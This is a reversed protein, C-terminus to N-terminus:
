PNQGGQDGGSNGEGGSGSGEGSPQGDSPPPPPPPTTEQEWPAPAAPAAAPPAPPLTEETPAPAPPAAEPAPAVPAPAAPAPAPAVPATEVPAPPAATEGPYTPETEWPAAPAVAGAPATPMPIEPAPELPPAAPAAHEPAAPPPEVVPKEEPPPAPPLEPPEAMKKDLNEIWKAVRPNRDKATTMQIYRNFSDKAEAYDKLDDYLIGMNLYLDPIGPVLEMAKKYDAQAADYGGLEREAAGRNLYYAGRDPQLAIAQDFEQKALDFGGDMYQLMGLNNHAEAFDSRYEIAKAFNNKASKRDGIKLYCMAMVEYVDANKTNIGQATECISLAAGYKGDLYYTQAINLLAPVNNSDIRIIEKFMQRAGAVDGSKMIAVGLNNKIRMDAPHGDALKKYQSIATSYEKGQMNADAQALAADVFDPKSDAASGFARAADSYKAEKMYVLGINYQADAAMEPNKQRAKEFDSIAGDYNGSQVKAMAQSFYAKSAEIPDAIRSAPDGAVGAPQQAAPTVPKAPEAKKQPASACGFALSVIVALM